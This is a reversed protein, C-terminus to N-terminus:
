IMMMDLALLLTAVFGVGCSDHEMEPGYVGAGILRAENAKRRTIYADADFKTNHGSM